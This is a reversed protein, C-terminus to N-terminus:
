SRLLRRNGARGPRDGPIPEGQQTVHAVLKTMTAQAYMQNAIKPPAPACAISLVTDGRPPLQAIHGQAPGGRGLRFDHFKARLAADYGRSATVLAEVSSRRSLFMLLSQPRNQEALFELHGL